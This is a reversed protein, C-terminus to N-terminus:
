ISHMQCEHPCHLSLRLTVLLWPSVNIVFDTGQRGENLDTSFVSLGM